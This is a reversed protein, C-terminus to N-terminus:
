ADFKMLFNIELQEDLWNFPSTIEFDMPCAPLSSDWAATLAIIQLSFKRKKPYIESVKQQYHRWSIPYPGGASSFTM